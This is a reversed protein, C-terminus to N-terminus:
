LAPKLERRTPKAPRRSGRPQRPQRPQQQAEAAAAQPFGAIPLAASRGGQQRGQLAGNLTWITLTRELDAAAVDGVGYFTIKLPECPRVTVSNKSFHGAPEADWFAEVAAGNTATLTFEVASANLQRFGQPKLVTQPMALRDFKAFWVSSEQAEGAGAVGLLNGGRRAKAATRRGPAERAEVRLYCSDRACGPRRALLEDVRATWEVKGPLAGAPVRLSAVQQGKACAAGGAGASLPQLFLKIDVAVPLAGSEDYAVELNVRNADEPTVYGVVQVPAYARKLAYHVPKWRLEYDMSSWSAGQWVDNLQWYLTGMSVRRPDRMKRRLLSIAHDYCVSQHVQRLYIWDSYLAARDVQGAAKFNHDPLGGFLKKMQETKLRTGDTNWRQRYQAAPAWTDWDEPPTVKKIAFWPADSQWGFESMMRAEPVVGPATCDKENEYFHVDGWKAAGADGWRKRALLEPLPASLAGDATAGTYFPGNAPSSDVFPREPDLKTIEDGVTDFYLKVYEAQYFPRDDRSEKFWWFGVENENNGGWVALSAHHGLRLVQEKIEQRVNALFAADSPYMACAFMAEQWLLIGNRDCEDYFSDPLYIGGGWVRLLNMHVTQPQQQTNLQKTHLPLTLIHHHCLQPLQKSGCVCVCLPAKRGRKKQGERRGGEGKSEGEREGEDGEQEGERGRGLGRGVGEEGDLAGQLTKRVYDDTVRTRVTDFPILNAGKLFMAVGNVRFYMAEGEADAGTPAPAGPALEKAAEAPPTTVLEVTRFGVNRRAVSCGFKKAAPAPAAAAAPDDTNFIPAEGCVPPAGM